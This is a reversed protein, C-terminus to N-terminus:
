RRRVLAALLRRLGVVPRGNMMLLLADATAFNLRGGSFLVLQRLPMAAVMEDRAKVLAPDGGDGVLGQSGRLVGRYLQRGIFTRCLEGLTEELPGAAVVRELVARQLQFLDDSPM